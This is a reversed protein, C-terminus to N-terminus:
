KASKNQGKALKAASQDQAQLKADKARAAALLAKVKQVEPYDGTYTAELQSLKAELQPVSTPQDGSGPAAAGSGANKEQAIRVMSALTIEGSQLSDQILINNQQARNLGDQVGELEVQLRNLNALMSKEQEPLEGQHALKYKSLMAEQQELRSKADALQNDLFESTGMAQMERTRLNDEIFLNALENTVMAVTTPVRGQYSITFAGPHDKSWTKDLEIDIDSRMMEIVKEEPLKQRQKAYLDYKKIITLLRSYALIRESLSSLTERLDQNVTATVFAQPIRQSEVLIVAQSKYTPPWKLAIGATITCGVVFIACLAIKRKWVARALSLPPLYFREASRKRSAM